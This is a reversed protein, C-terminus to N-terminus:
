AALQRLVPKLRKRVQGHLCDEVADILVNLRTHQFGVRKLCPDSLMGVLLSMATVSLGVILTAGLVQWFSPNPPFVSYFASGLSSGFMFTSTAEEKARNRAILGGIGSIGLSHDGFFLWGAALTLVTATTDLVVIRGASHEAVLCPIDSLKMLAEDSLAGSALLPGVQKHRKMRELLGNPTAQRDGMTCPWDLLETAILQEIERQYRTKFGTPVLTMLDAGSRWGLKMPVEILKKLFLSPIAWLANIPHCLLDSVLSQKQLAITEQLSFHRQVFDDVRSRCEAIYQEICEELGLIATTTQQDNM